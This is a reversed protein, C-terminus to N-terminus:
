CLNSSDPFNGRKREPSKVFLFDVMSEKEKDTEREREQQRTAKWKKVPQRANSSTYMIASMGWPAESSYRM